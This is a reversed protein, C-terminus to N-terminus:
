STNRKIARQLLHLLDRTASSFTLPLIALLSAVYIAGILLGHYLPQSPGRNQMFQSSAMALLAATVLIPLLRNLLPAASLQIQHLIFIVEVIATVALYIGVALSVRSPDNIGGLWAGVLTAVGIGLGRILVTLTWLRFYGRSQALMEVFFATLHLPMVLALIQISPVATAWRGRWLVSEVDPGVAMLLYMAPGAILGLFAASLSLGRQQQKPDDGVRHFVPLVVRRLSESFLLVLQMTLQYAFFYIGVIPATAVLGYVAYDIQRLVATSVSGGLSWNSTKLLQWCESKNFQTRWLRRGTLSRYCVIEFLMAFVVPIVFSYPGFGLLALVVILGYRIVATILRVISMSRFRLQVQLYPAAVTSYAGLPFSAALILILHTVQPERYIVGVPFAALSLAVSAIISCIVSLWFAQGAKRDYEDPALRALWLGVGGDRFVRLFDAFAISIAYIGFDRNTLLWGLAVQTLLSIAM